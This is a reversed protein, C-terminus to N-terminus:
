EIQHRRGERIHYTLFVKCFMVRVLFVSAMGGQGIKKVYNYRPPPTLQQEALSNEVLSNFSDDCDSIFSDSKMETINYKHITTSVNNEIVLHKSIM